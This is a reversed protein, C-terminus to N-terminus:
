QGLKENVCQVLPMVFDKSSIDYSEKIAQGFADEDESKEKKNSMLKAVMKMLTRDVFGMKEYDLGSQLYFHPITQRETESLNSNWIGTIVDEAAAPTAGTAFVVLNGTPHNSLRLKVKSLHQVKGAFVRSGFIVIDDAEIKTNQFDKYPKVDCGLEQAIWDAYRKTFGSKSHVCVMIKGM